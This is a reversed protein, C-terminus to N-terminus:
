GLNFRLKAFGLTSIDWKQDFTDPKPSTAKRCMDAVSQECLPDVTLVTNTEQVRTYIYIYFYQHTPLNTAYM